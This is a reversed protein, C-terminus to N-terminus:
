NASVPPWTGCCKPPRPQCKRERWDSLSHLTCLASYLNIKSVQEADLALLSYSRYETSQFRNETGGAPASLLGGWLTEKLRASLVKLERYWEFQATHDRGKHAGMFVKASVRRERSGKSPQRNLHGARFGCGSPYGGGTKLTGPERHTSMGDAKKTMAKRYAIAHLTASLFPFTLLCNTPNKGQICFFYLIQHNVNEACPKM